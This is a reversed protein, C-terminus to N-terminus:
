PEWEKSNSRFIAEPFSSTPGLSTPTPGPSSPSGSESIALRGDWIRGKWSTVVRLSLEPEPLSEREEEDEDEVPAVRDGQEEYSQVASHDLATADFGGRSFIALEQEFDIPPSSIRRITGERDGGQREMEWGDARDVTTLAATASRRSLKSFFGTGITLSYPRWGFRTSSATRPVNPSSGENKTLSRLLVNFSPLCACIIGITVELITFMSLITFDATPDTSSMFQVIRYTRFVTIGTAVGGASLLVIIKCKQWFGLARMSMALPIPVVLIIFDTIMALSIDSLFLHSQNVCYPNRGNIGISATIEWYASIPRCVLIKAIQIPLYAIALCIIFRRLVKSIWEKVSFVRAILLLLTAKTAFAAPIYAVSSIYM